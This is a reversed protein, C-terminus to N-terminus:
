DEDPENLGAVFAAIATTEAAGIRSVIKVVDAVLQDRDAEFNGEPLMSVPICGLAITASEEVIGGGKRSHAWGGLIKWIEDAAKRGGKSWIWPVAIGCVDKALSIRVEPPATLMVGCSFWGNSPAAYVRTGWEWWNRVYSRGRKHSLTAGLGAFHEEIGKGCLELFDAAQEYAAAGVVRAMEKIQEANDVGTLDPEEEEAHGYLRNMEAMYKLYLVLPKGLPTM